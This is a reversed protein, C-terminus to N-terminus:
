TQLRSCLRGLGRETLAREFRGDAVARAVQVAVDPYDVPATDHVGFDEVECGRAVLHERVVEKLPYGLDDAGIAVRQRESM